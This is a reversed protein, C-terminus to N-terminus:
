INSYINNKKINKVSDKNSTYIKIYGNTIPNHLSKNYHKSYILNKKISLQSPLVSFYFIKNIRRLKM